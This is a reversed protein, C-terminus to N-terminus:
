QIFIKYLRNADEQKSTFYVIEGKQDLLMQDINEFNAIKTISHKERNDLELINISTATSFLIYNNSPHWEINNIHESIRTLLKKELSSLDFLWIEFGTTYLLKNNTIWQMKESGYIIERLPKINSNSDILYLIQHNTDLLNILNHGTNIFNYNSFPLELKITSKKSNRDFILLNSISGKQEVLYIKNDKALFTDINDTDLIEKNNGNELNFSFLKDKFSYLIANDSSEDWSFNSFKEGILSKIYIPNNWDNLTFINTDSMVKRGNSSWYINKTSNLNNIETNELRTSKIEQNELNIIQSQNSDISLFYQKDSSFNGLETSVKKILAPKDNKFLYIDEAFTTQGSNITLKKTWPWYGPLDISINYDGPKLNKLKSPTQVFDGKKNLVKSWFKQVAEDEISIKAGKPETNIVLIGSKEIKFGSQLSYGLSYFILLPTLILFISIFSM